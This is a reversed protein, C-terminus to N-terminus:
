NQLIEVNNFNYPEHENNLKNLHKQTKNHHSFNYIKIHKECSPCLMTQKGREKRYENYEKQYNKMDDYVYKKKNIIFQNTNKCHKDSKIHQNMNKVECKCDNCFSM